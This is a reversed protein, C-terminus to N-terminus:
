TKFQKISKLLNTLLTTKIKLRANLLLYHKNLFGIKEKSMGIHELIDRVIFVFMSTTEDITKYYQPDTKSLNNYSIDYLNSMTLESFINNEIENQIFNGLPVNKDRENFHKCINEWVEKNSKNYYNNNIACLYIKYPLIIDNLISDGKNEDLFIEDSTPSNLYEIVRQSNNNLKFPKNVENFDIEKKKNEILNKIEENIIKIETELRNKLIIISNIRFSSNVNLLIKLNDYNLFSLIRQYNFKDKEKKVFKNQNKGLDLCNFKIDKLLEDNALKKELTFTGLINSVESQHYHLNSLKRIEDINQIISTETNNLDNNEKIEKNEKNEKNDKNEKKNTKNKHITPKQTKFKKKQRYLEPTLSKLIETTKKKKIEVSIDLKNEKEKKLHLTNKKKYVFSNELDQKIPIKKKPSPTKIRYHKKDQKKIPTKENINSKNEKSKNENEENSKLFNKSFFNLIEKSDSKLFNLTNIENNNKKELKELREGLLKNLLVSLNIKESINKIM